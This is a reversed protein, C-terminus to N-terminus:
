KSAFKELGVKKKPQKKEVPKEFANILDNLADNPLVNDSSLENNLSDLIAYKQLNKAKIYQQKKEKHIRRIFAYWIIQTFYAFPNNTKDPDFNDLYLFCNGTLLGNSLVFSKTEPEIVCFVEDIGFDNIYRVRPSYYNSESLTITYLPKNNDYKGTGHETKRIGLLHYGGYSAYDEIWKVANINTTSIQLRTTPTTKSGDALWWGYIFGKIYSPDTTFPLDKYFLKNGLYFVPDGKAHEPYNAVYGASELYEIIEDKVKDQKCVRIFPYEKGQLSILPSTYSTKTNISGDGFIIGHIIATSDPSELTLSHDLVDGVRLDDVVQDKYDILSKENRRGKIFWRHNKTAIVKQKIFKSQTNFSSIGYEYLHQKGFSKVDALRWKGDKCKVTVKKNVVKEIEVSGYEITMIKTSRHLCNEVGDSIMEDKYTYGIFNRNNSLKQAILLICLGIYESVQPKPLGKQKHEEIKEKYRVMELYFKENNVYDKPKKM